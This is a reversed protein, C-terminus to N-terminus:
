KNVHQRETEIEKKREKKREKKKKCIKSILFIFLKHPPPSHSVKSNPQNINLSPDESM